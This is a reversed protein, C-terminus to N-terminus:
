RVVSVLLYTSTTRFCTPDENGERLADLMRGHMRTWEAPHSALARKIGRWIPHHTEQEDLWEEPSASTVVLSKEEITVRQFRTFLSRVFSPDGWAPM